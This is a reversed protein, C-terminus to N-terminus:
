HGKLLLSSGTSLRAVPLAQPMQALPLYCLTQQNPKAAGSLLEETIGPSNKIKNQITEYPINSVTM